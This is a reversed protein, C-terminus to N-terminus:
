WEVWHSCRQWKEVKHANDYKTLVKSRPIISLADSLPRQGGLVEFLTMVNEKEEHRLIKYGIATFAEAGQRNCKNVKEAVLRVSRM